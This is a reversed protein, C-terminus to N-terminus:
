GAMVPSAAKDEGPFWEWLPGLSKRLWHIYYQPVELTEQLYFKKFRPDSQFRGLFEQCYNIVNSFHLGRFVNMWRWLSSQNSKFRKSMAKKTVMYKALDIFHKYFEEWSYNKPIVNM